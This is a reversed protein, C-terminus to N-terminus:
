GHSARSAAMVDPHFVPTQLADPVPLEVTFTSGAGVTSTAFVRGGHGEVFAKVLALGLGTGKGGTKSANSAQYFKTFVHSLDAQPIGVGTDKVSVLLKNRARAISVHVVGGKDTYKVANTLLNSFVHSLKESDAMARPVPASTLHVTIQKRSALLRAEEVEATVVSVLDCPALQFEMMGAEVKALDLFQNTFKMLKDISGRISGLLKHQEPNLPGLKQEALLFQASLITQLPTRLEHSIQHMLDAKYENIKRLKDSMDNVAEALSGIEDNSTVSIPEFTGRAIQQTGNIVDALPRTITRAIALALTVAILLTGLTLLLAINASRETTNEVTAMAADISRQNIRIFRDLLTRASDLGSSRTAAPVRAELRQRSLEAAFRDHIHQIESLLELETQDVPIATLTDMEENFRRTREDLIAYYVDDHAILFKQAYAEEEYFLTNIQKALDIAQVNSTLTVKTKNSVAFLEFLMYANGVTMILIIITFGIMM